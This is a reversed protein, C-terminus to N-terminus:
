AMTLGRVRIYWMHVHIPLLRETAGFFMHAKVKLEDVNRFSVRRYACELYPFPACGDCGVELMFKGFLCFSVSIILRLLIAM